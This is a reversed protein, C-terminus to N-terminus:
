YVPAQSLIPRAGDIFMIISIDQSLKQATQSACVVPQNNHSWVSIGVGFEARIALM